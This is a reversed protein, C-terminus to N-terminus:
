CIKFLILTRKYYRRFMRSSFFPISQSQIPNQWSKHFSHIYLSEFFDISNLLVGKRCQIKKYTEITLLRPGGVYLINFVFKIQSAATVLFTEFNHSTCYEACCPAEKKLMEKYDLDTFVKYNDVRWTTSWFQNIIWSLWFQPLPTSELQILKQLM